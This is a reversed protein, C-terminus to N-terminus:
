AAVAVEGVPEVFHEPAPIHALHPRLIPASWYEELRRVISVLEAQDTPKVFYHDVGLHSAHRLDEPDLSSSFVAVKAPRLGPESALWDLVEFGSMAPMKLDLLLLAPWDCERRAKEHLSQIVEFGNRAWDLHVQAGARKFARRLLLQDAEDDEAVLISPTAKM